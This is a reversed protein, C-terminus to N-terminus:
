ISLSGNRKSHSGKTYWITRASVCPKRGFPLYFEGARRHACSPLCWPKWGRTFRGKGLFARSFNSFQSLLPVASSNKKRLPACHAGMVRCIRLMLYRVAVCANEDVCARCVRTACSTQANNHVAGAFKIQYCGDGQRCWWRVWEEGGVGFFLVECGSQAVPSFFTRSFNCM